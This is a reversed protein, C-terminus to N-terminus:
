PKANDPQLQGDIFKASVLERVFRHGPGSKINGTVGDLTLETRGNLLEQAIRFADIGLAYLRQLDISGGFDQRPYIMVAPHDPQLLWPMELIRVDALDFGALSGLKLQDVQSTAYVALPDLYPRLQRARQFDLALFVMDAVGLEAAQKIRNLGDQDETAFFEAIHSGGLRSFEEVFAQHMRRQLPTEGNITYAKRRGEQFALQAVQRAEAEIQLSLVFMNQPLPGDGDPSSLALTPVPISNSAVLATVGNRTLPGIVMRAGSDLAHRYGDVVSQEDEESVAYVRIPLLAGGQTRAAAM